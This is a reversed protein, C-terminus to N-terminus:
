LVPEPRPARRSFLFRGAASLAIRGIRPSLGGGEALADGVINRVRRDDFLLSIWFPFHRPSYLFDAARATLRLERGLPTRLLRRHHNGFRYDGKRRAALLTDAALEAYAFGQAIGEGMLPDIGAADGVLLVRPLATPIRPNFAREAYGKWRFADPQVGREALA